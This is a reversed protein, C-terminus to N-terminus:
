CLRGLHMDSLHQTVGFPRAIRGERELVERWLRGLTYHRVRHNPPHHSNPLTFQFLFNTMPSTPHNMACESCLIPCPLIFDRYLLWGALTM